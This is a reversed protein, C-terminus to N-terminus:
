NSRKLQEIIIKNIEKLQVEVPQTTFNEGLTIIMKAALIHYIETLNLIENLYATSYVRNFQDGLMAQLIETKKEM